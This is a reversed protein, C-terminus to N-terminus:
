GMLVPEFIQVPMLGALKYGTSKMVYKKNICKACRKCHIYAVPFVFVLHHYFLNGLEKVILITQTIVLFSDRKYGERITNHYSVFAIVIAM